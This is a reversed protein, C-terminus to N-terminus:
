GGYTRLAEEVAGDLPTAPTHGSPARDGLVQRIYTMFHDFGIDMVGDLLLGPDERRFPESAYLRRAREIHGQGAAAATLGALAITMGARNNLERWNFLGEALVIAAEEYKGEGVLIIGYLTLTRSLNYPETLHRALSVAEAAHKHAMEYDGRLWAVSARIGEMRGVGYPDRLDRFDSSAEAATVDADALKGQAVLNEAIMGLLNTAGWSAELALAIQRNEDFLRQAEHGNGMNMAAIGLWNLLLSRRLLDNSGDLMRESEQLHALGQAYDGRQLELVGLTILAAAWAEDSEDARRQAFLTETRVWAEPGHKSFLIFHGLSAVLRIAIRRDGQETLSWDLAGRFNDWDAEISTIVTGPGAAYAKRELTEALDAFFSAYRRHFPQSEESEELRALGYERITQLLSFRPEQGSDDQRVLSKEVLSTLGDLM